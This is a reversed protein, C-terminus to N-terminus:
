RVHIFPQIRRLIKRQHKYAYTIIKKELAYPINVFNVGHSYRYKGEGELTQLWVVEGTSQVSTPPLRDPLVFSLDVWTGPILPVETALRLGSGSIDMRLGTRPEGYGDLPQIVRYTVPLIEEIRLTKRKDRIMSVDKAM